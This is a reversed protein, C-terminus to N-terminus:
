EAEQVSSMKNDREAMGKGLYAGAAGFAIALTVIPAFPVALLGASVDMIEYRQMERM